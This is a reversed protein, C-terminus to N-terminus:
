QKRDSLLWCSRKMYPAIYFRNEELPLNFGTKCTKYPFQHSGLHAAFLRVSQHAIASALVCVLVVVPLGHIKIVRPGGYGTSLVWWHCSLILKVPETRSTTVNSGSIETPVHGAGYVGPRSHVEEERNSELRSNLSVCLRHAKFVLGGRFRQVNKAALACVHM